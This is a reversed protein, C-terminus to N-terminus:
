KYSCLSISGVNTLIYSKGMCFSLIGSYNPDLDEICHINSIDLKDKIMECVEEVSEGLKEGMVSYKNGQYKYFVIHGRSVYSRTLNLFTKSSFTRQSLMSLSRLSANM